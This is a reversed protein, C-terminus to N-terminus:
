VAVESTTPVIVPDFREKATGLVYRDERPEYIHSIRRLGDEDRGVQIVLDILDNLFEPVRALTQGSWAINHDFKRNLAQWPSHAHITCMFGTIGSNLLGLAPYANQTSIEGLIIHDPTIRMVHDHAQRWSLMAKNADDDRGCVLGVGDYHFKDIGVEPTDEIAVVRRSEPVMDLLMNLLTTKGTNTAGSIIINKSASVAKHFYAHGIADVGLNDWTPTFAHKCRIALSLGSQVSPGIACEFRHHKGPILCSLKPQTAPDFKIKAHNALAKCISEIRLRTLDSDLVVQKGLGRHDIVVMGPRSMRLEVIEPKEYHRALPMLVDALAKNM